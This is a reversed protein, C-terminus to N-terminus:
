DNKLADWENKLQLKSYKRRTAKCFNKVLNEQGIKTFHTEPRYGQEVEVMCLNYFISVTENDWIAKGRPVNNSEIQSIIKKYRDMQMM